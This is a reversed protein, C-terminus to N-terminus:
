GCRIRFDTSLRVYQDEISRRAESVVEFTGTGNNAVAITTQNLTTVLVTQIAALSAMGVSVKGYLDIQFEFQKLIKNSFTTEVTPTVVNFVCLPFSANNAPALLEYIRGGVLAHLSGGSTDEKLKNYIATVVDQSL